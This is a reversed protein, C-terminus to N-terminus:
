PHDGGCRRVLFDACHRGQRWPAAPSRRFLLCANRRFECGVSGHYPKALEVSKAQETLVYPVALECVTDSLDEKPRIYQLTKVNTFDLSRVLAIADKYAKEAARTEGIYYYSDALLKTAWLYMQFYEQIADFAADKGSFYSGSSLRAFFQAVQLKPIAPFAQVKSKLTEGIQGRAELLLQQANGVAIKRQAPDEILIAQEM